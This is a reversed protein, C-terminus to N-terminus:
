SLVDSPQGAACHDGLPLLVLGRVGLPARGACHGWEGKATDGTAACACTGTCPTQPMDKM